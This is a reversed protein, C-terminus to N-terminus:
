LVLSRVIFVQLQRANEDFIKETQNVLKEYERIRSEWLEVHSTLTQCIWVVDTYLCVRGVLGLFRQASSGRHHRTLEYWVTVGRTAEHEGAASAKIMPLRGEKAVSVWCKTFSSTTIVVSSVECSNEQAENKQQPTPLNAHDATVNTTRDEHPINMEQVALFHEESYIENEIWELFEVFYPEQTFFHNLWVSLSCEKQRPPM